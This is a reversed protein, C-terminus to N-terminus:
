STGTTTSNIQIRQWTGWQEKDSNCRAIVTDKHCKYKTAVESPLTYEVGDIKYVYKPPTKDWKKLKIGAAEYQAKWHTLNEDKQFKILHNNEKPTVYHVRARSKFFSEFRDMRKPNLIGKEMLEIMKKASQTRSFYHEKCIDKYQLEYAEESAYGSHVYPCQYIVDKITGVMSKYYNPDYGFKEWGEFLAIAIKTATKYKTENEEM